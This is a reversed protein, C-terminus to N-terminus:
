PAAFLSHAADIALVCLAKAISMCSTGLMALAMARSGSQLGDELPCCALVDGDFQCVADRLSSYDFDLDLSFLFSLTLVRSYLERRM